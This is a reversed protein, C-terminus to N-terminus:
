RTDILCTRYLMIRLLQDTKGRCHDKLIVSFHTDLPCRLSSTSVSQMQTKVGIILFTNRFGTYVARIEKNPINDAVDKKAGSM